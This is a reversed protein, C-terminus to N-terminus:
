RCIVLHMSVDCAPIHIALHARRKNKLWMLFSATPSSVQWLFETSRLFPRTRMEWRVVNAWQNIKLPLDAVVDV